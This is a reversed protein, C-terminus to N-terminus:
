AHQHRLCAGAVLVCRPLAQLAYCCGFSVIMGLVLAADRKDGQVVVPFLLLM